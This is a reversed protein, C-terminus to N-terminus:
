PRAERDARKVLVLDYGLAAAYATFARLNPTSGQEWNWATTPVLMARRATESVSLGAAIRAKALETVLPHPATM